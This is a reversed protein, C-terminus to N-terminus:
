MSFGDFEDFFKAARLKIWLNNLCKDSDFLLYLLNGFCIFIGLLLPSPKGELVPCAYFFSQRFVSSFITTPSPNSGDFELLASKCDAANSRKAIGGNGNFSRM